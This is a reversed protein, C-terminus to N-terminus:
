GLEKTLNQIKLIDHVFKNDLPRKSSSQLIEIVQETKHLMDKDNKIAPMTLAKKLLEHLRPIEENLYIKIEIGNDTFSTVYKQLLSKQEEMLNDTYKENFKKVFTKYTLNDIPKLLDKEREEDSIMTEVMQHELLVRQKTRSKPNFIQFVTALDKYNPVFNSFVPGPIEKNIRDIIETQEVFLQKANISKKVMRSEFIIREAIHREVNETELISKYLELDKALLTNGKFHERIIRMIKRKAREDKSIVSKTLERILVEFIFATNRKKNHKMKM